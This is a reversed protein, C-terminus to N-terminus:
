NTKTLGDALNYASQVLGIDSIESTRFQERAAAIDLMLRKESTRSGNSIVEFLCKSDTLQQLPLLHVLLGGLEKSLTVAVDSMDEFSIFKGDM